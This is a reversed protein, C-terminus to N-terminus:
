FVFGGSGTAIKSRETTFSCSGRRFRDTHRYITEVDHGSFTVFVVSISDGDEVVQPKWEAPEPEAWTWEDRGGSPQDMGGGRSRRAKLPNKGLITHTSWNAGHWMAGFEHIERCFLSACLYSWHTGDGEIADMVDDLAAPPKPPALFMQELRPCEDPEPFPADTPLAWVFGNGNGGECFQYARLVFGSKIRLPKFVALVDMPDVTSKSWGQPPDIEGDRAVQAAQKRLRSIRTLHFTTTTM